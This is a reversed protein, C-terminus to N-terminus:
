GPSLRCRGVGGTEIRYDMLPKEVLVRQLVTLPGASSPPWEVEVEVGTCGHPVTVQIDAGQWSPRASLSM